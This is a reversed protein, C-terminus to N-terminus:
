RKGFLFVGVGIGAWLAIKQNTTLNHGKVQTVDPYAVKTAAGTQLSTVVFSTDEIESIYGELRTKDQLKVKIRADRGAGLKAIGAKVKEAFKIRNQSQSNAGAPRPSAMPILLAALALALTTRLM